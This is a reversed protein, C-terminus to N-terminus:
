SAKPWKTCGQALFEDIVQSRRQQARLNPPPSSQERHLILREPPNHLYFIVTLRELPSADVPCSGDLHDLDNPIGSLSMLSSTRIKYIEGHNSVLSWGVWVLGFWVLGLGVLQKANTPEPQNKLTDDVLWVVFRLSAVDM